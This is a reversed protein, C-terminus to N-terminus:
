MVETPTPAPTPARTPAPAPTPRPATRALAAVRARFRALEAEGPGFVGDFGAALLADAYQGGAGDVGLKGGIVMTIGGRGPLSGIAGAYAPGEIHGHGNVTSLVVLAPPETRCVEVLDAVDTCAGLNRVEFGLDELLLQM